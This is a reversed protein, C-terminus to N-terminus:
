PRCTPQDHPLGGTAREIAAVDRSLDTFVTEPKVPRIAGNWVSARALLQVGGRGCQVPVGASDVVVVTLTLADIAGEGKAPGMGEKVGDYEEPKGGRYRVHIVDVRAHLIGWAGLERAAVGSVTTWKDVILKGTAPDYFGRVSDALRRWIPEVVDPLITTLGSRNLVTQILSDFIQRGVVNNPVDPRISIPLLAVVRIGTADVTDPGQAVADTPSAVTLQLVALAALVLTSGTGPGLERRNMRKM